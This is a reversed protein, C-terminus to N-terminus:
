HSKEQRQKSIANFPLLFEVGTFHAEILLECGGFNNLHQYNARQRKQESLLNCVISIAGSNVPWSFHCQTVHATHCLQM